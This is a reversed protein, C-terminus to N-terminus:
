YEKGLDKFRDLVVHSFNVINFIGAGPQVL